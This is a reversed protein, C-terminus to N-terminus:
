NAPFKERAKALRDHNQEIVRDWRASNEAIESMGFKACLALALLTKDDGKAIRVEIEDFCAFDHELLHELLCTSLASITDYTRTKDLAQITLEFVHSFHTRIFESVAITEKWIEDTPESEILALLRYGTPLDNNV